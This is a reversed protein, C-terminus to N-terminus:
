GLHLQRWRRMTSDVVLKSADIGDAGREEQRGLLRKGKQRGLAEADNLEHEQGLDSEHDRNRQQGHTCCTAAVQGQQKSVGGIIAPKSNYKRDPHAAQQQELEPQAVRM